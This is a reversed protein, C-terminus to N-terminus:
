GIGRRRDGIKQIIKVCQVLNVMQMARIKSWQQFFYLYNVKVSFHRSESLLYPSSDLLGNSCPPM